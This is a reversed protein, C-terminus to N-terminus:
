SMAKRDTHHTPLHHRYLRFHLHLRVCLRLHQLSAMLDICAGITITCKSPSPGQKIEELEANNPRLARVNGTGLTSTRGDDIDQPPRTFRRRCYIALLAVLFALGVIGGVVGGAIAATNSRPVSKATQLGSQGTTIAAPVSDPVSASTAFGQATSTGPVTEGSADPTDTPMTFLAYPREPNTISTATASSLPVLIHQDSLHGPTLDGPPCGSACHNDSKCCGMFSLTTNQCAMWSGTHCKGSGSYTANFSAPKLEDTPCRDLDISCTEIACCGLFTPCAYFRGGSPCPPSSSSFSAM